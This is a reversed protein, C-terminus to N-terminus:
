PPDGRPPASPADAQWTFTVQTLLSITASPDICPDQRLWPEIAEAPEPAFCAYGDYGCAAPEIAVQLTCAFGAARGAPRAAFSARWHDPWCQSFEALGLDARRRVFQMLQLAQGSAGVRLVERTVLAFEACPAGFVRLEDPQLIERTARCGLMRHLAAVDPCRTAGVADWTSHLGIGAELDHRVRAQSYGSICQMLEADGAALAAHSRWRRAFEVDDLGPLRRALYVYHAAQGPMSM